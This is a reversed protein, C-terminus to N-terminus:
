LSEEKEQVTKEGARDRSQPSFPIGYKNWIQYTQGRAKVSRTVFVQKEKLNMMVGTVEVPEGQAVSM